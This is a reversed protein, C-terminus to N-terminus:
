PLLFRNTRYRSLLLIGSADTFVKDNEYSQPKQNVALNRDKEPFLLLIKDIHLHFFTVCLNV